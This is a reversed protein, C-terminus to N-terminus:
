NGSSFVGQELPMRSFQSYYNYREIVKILICMSVTFVAGCVLLTPLPSSEPTEPDTQTPHCLYYKLTCFLNLMTVIGTVLTFLSGIILEGTNSYANKDSPLNSVSVWSPSKQEFAKSDISGHTTSYRNYHDLVNLWAVLAVISLFVTFANESGDGCDLQVGSHIFIHVGLAAVTLLSAPIATVIVDNKTVIKHKSLFQNYHGNRVEVKDFPDYDSDSDYNTYSM